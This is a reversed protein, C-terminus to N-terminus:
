SSRQRSFVACSKSHAHWAEAPDGRAQRALLRQGLEALPDPERELHEVVDEVDGAGLLPGSLRLPVSRSSPVTLRRQDEGGALVGLDGRDIEVAEVLGAGLREAVADGCGTHEVRDAGAGAGGDLPRLRDEFAPQRLVLALQEAEDGVAHDSARSISIGRHPGGAGETARERPPPQDLGRPDRQGAARRGGEGGAPVVRAGGVLRVVGPHEIRQERELERRDRGVLLERRQELALIQREGPLEALLVLGVRGRDASGDGVDAAPRHLRLGVRQACSPEVRHLGLGGREGERAWSSCHPM